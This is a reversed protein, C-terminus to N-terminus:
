YNKGLLYANELYGKRTSDDVGNVAYYYTHEVKGIGPYRFAFDDYLKKIAQEFGSKYSAEDFLTASMISVKQHKLLPIRGGLDGKWGENTLGFAFGATFVREVWGKLIAPFGVFWMPSIIALGQARAVKEQQEVIDKPRRAKAMELLEKTTKNKLVMRIVRRMIPNNTTLEAQKKLNIGELVEMPLGENVWCPGDKTGVIPNFKIAYLDVIENEHGAEKLGQDFKELIAHCFSKPNPNAYVTLVKM